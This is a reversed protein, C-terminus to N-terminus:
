PFDLRAAMSIFVEFREIINIETKRRSYDLLRGIGFLLEINSEDEVFWFDITSHKYRDLEGVLWLPRRLWPALFTCIPAIAAGPWERFGYQHPIQWYAEGVFFDNHSPTDPGLNDVTLIDIGTDVNLM